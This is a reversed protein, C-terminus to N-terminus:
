DRELGMEIWEPRFCKNLLRYKYRAQIFMDLEDTVANTLNRVSYQTGYNITMKYADFFPDFAELRKVVQAADVDWSKLPPRNCLTTLEDLIYRLSTQRMQFVNSM